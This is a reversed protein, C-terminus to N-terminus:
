RDVEHVIDQRILRLVGRMSEPQVVHRGYKRALLDCVQDEAQDNEPVTELAFSTAPVTGVIAARSLIEVKRGDNRALDATLEVSSVYPVDDLIVYPISYKHDTAILKLSVYLYDLIDSTDNAHWVIDFQEDVFKGLSSTVNTEYHRVETGIRTGAPFFSSIARNDWRYLRAPPLSNYVRVSLRSAHDDTKIVGCFEEFAKLVDAIVNTVQLQGDLDLSRQEAAKSTPDLVLIQAAVGRDLASRLARLFEARWQLDMVYPWAGMIRIQQSASSVGDIFRQHPFDPHIVEEPRRGREIVPELVLAAMFVTIVSAGLNVLVERWTGSAIVGAGTLGVGLLFILGLTGYFRPRSRLTRRLHRKV